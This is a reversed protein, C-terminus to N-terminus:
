DLIGLHTLVGRMFESRKAATRIGEFGFGTYVTDDTAVVAGEQFQETTREWGNAPNDTGEPPPGITWGGEDTEFSTEAVTAGDATV